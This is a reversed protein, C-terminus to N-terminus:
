WFIAQVKQQKVLLQPAFLLVGLYFLVFCSGHADSHLSCYGGIKEIERGDRPDKDSRDLSSVCVCLRVVRALSGAAAAFFAQCSEVFSARRNENKMGEM